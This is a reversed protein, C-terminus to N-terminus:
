IKNETTLHGVFGISRSWVNTCFVSVYISTVFKINKLEHINSTVDIEFKM